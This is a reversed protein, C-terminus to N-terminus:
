LIHEMDQKVARDIQIDMGRNYGKRRSIDIKLLM